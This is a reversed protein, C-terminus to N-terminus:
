IKNEHPNKKSFLNKELLSKKIKLPFIYIYIYLPLNFIFNFDDNKVFLLPIIYIKKNFM